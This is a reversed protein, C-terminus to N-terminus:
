RKRVAPAMTINIPKANSIRCPEALPLRAIECLDRKGEYWWLCNYLDDLPLESIMHTAEEISMADLGHRIHRTLELITMSKSIGLTLTDANKKTNGKKSKTVMTVEKSTESYADNYTPM